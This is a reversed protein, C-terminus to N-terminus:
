LEHNKIIGIRSCQQCKTVNKSSITTNPSVQSDVWPIIQHGRFWSLSTQSSSLGPRVLTWRLLWRRCSSSWWLPLTPWISSSWSSLILSPSSSSYALSLLPLQHHDQHCYQHRQHYLIHQHFCHCAGSCGIFKPKRWCTEAIAWAGLIIMEETKWIMVVTIM